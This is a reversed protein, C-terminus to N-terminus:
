PADANLWARAEHEEMFVATEFARPHYRFYIEAFEKNLSSHAAFALRRSSGCGGHLGQHDIAIVNLEMDTEPMMVVLVDFTHEGDLSQKAALVEGMGQPDLKVNPKFRIEVLDQSVREITAQSTEIRQKDITSM